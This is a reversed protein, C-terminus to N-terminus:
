SNIAFFMVLMVMKDIGFAPANNFKFVCIKFLDDLTDAILQSIFNDIVVNLEKTVLFLM